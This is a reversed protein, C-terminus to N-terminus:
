ALLRGMYAEVLPEIHSIANGAVNLVTIKNQRIWRRAAEPKPTLEYGPHLMTIQVDFYPKKFRNIAKMTCREGPSNFDIAFRITGDSDQVNRFTRPPYADTELEILSYVSGLQPDLGHKTRFGRPACGGTALGADKAARLAAIDAGTQGGSIVTVIM